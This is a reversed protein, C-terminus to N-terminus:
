KKKLKNNSKICKLVSNKNLNHNLKGNSSITAETKRWRIYKRLIFSFFVNLAIFRSYPLCTLRVILMHTHTQKLAFPNNNDDNNYCKNCSIVTIAFISYQLKEAISQYPRLECWCMYYCYHDFLFVFSPLSFFFDFITLLISKYAISILKHRYPSPQFPVNFNSFRFAVFVFRFWFWCVAGTGFLFLTIGCALMAFFNTFSLTIHIFMYSSQARLDSCIPSCFRINKNNQLDDDTINIRKFKRVNFLFIDRRNAENPGNKTEKERRQHQQQEM